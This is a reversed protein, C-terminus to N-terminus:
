MVEPVDETVRPGDFGPAVGGTAVFAPGIAEARSVGIAAASAGSGGGGSAAGYDQSIASAIASSLLDDGRASTGGPGDRDALGSGPLPDPGALAGMRSPDIAAIPGDRAVMVPTDLAQPRYLRELADLPGASVGGTGPLADGGGAALGALPDLQAVAEPVQEVPAVTVRQVDKLVAWAGYGIAGILGLLVLTSGIARPEVSAFPGKTEPAFSVRPQAIPDREGRADPAARRKRFVPGREPAARAAGAGQQAASMPTFGSEACFTAFAWEPDLGLYRAYSRVYGAVFGPSEFASLDANEIAAIFTAKIKLERQVDLLSKGLTAREGRMVDGLRLDFDDFGLPQAPDDHSPAERWGIM